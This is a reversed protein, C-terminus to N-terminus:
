LNKLAVTINRTENSTKEIEILVCNEPLLQQGVAFWEVFCYCGSNLVEEIGADLAEQESQLRYLDLHFIASGDITKYENVIAYTPSSAADQCRLLQCFNQTLTTKGAGLNGNLLFVRVDPFVALVEKAVKELKSLSVDKFILQSSM